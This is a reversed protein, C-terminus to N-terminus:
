KCKELLSNMFEAANLLPLAEESAGMFRKVARAISVPSQPDFVQEPDLVDRVFELDSAIVALGAQRAEILPIGFSEFTSPFVLAEVQTYLQKIQEHSQRGLNRLNLGFNQKKQAIWACLDANAHGDLTLWLAPFLGEQALLCWAEILQRHNKHPEGSGVYLFTGSAGKGPQPQPRTLSRQYGESVSVFPLVYVPKGRAKGSSRLIAEMSPTQVVFASANVARASLWWREIQLRLRAKLPFGNLSVDDILYRNQILVIVRGATRFLPPLNGFCLVADKSSTARALWWEARLRQWLSPKVRKVELNHPLTEPTEMRTDLLAIVSSDTPLSQLLANLLSRGGGTHVNTAHVFLRRGSSIM